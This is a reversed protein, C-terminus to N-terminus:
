HIYGHLSKQMFKTTKHHECYQFFTDSSIYRQLFIDWNSLIIWVAWLKWQLYKGRVLHIIWLLFSVTEPFLHQQPNKKTSVMQRRQLKTLVQVFSIFSDGLYDYFVSEGMIQIFQCKFTIKKEKQGSFVSAPASGLVSYAGPSCRQLKLM